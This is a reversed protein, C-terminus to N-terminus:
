PRRPARAGRRQPTSASQHSVAEHPRRVGDSAPWVQLIRSAGHLSSLPDERAAPRGRTENAAAATWAHRPGALRSRASSTDLVEDVSLLKRIPGRSTASCPSKKLRAEYGRKTEETGHASRNDRQHVIKKCRGESRM